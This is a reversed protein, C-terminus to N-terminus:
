TMFQKNGNLFILKNAKEPTLSNRRDTIIQGAKSFIREAPVSTAPVCLYWLAVDSLGNTRNDHLWYKVPDTTEPEPVKEIYQRVCITADTSATSLRQHQSVKRALFSLLGGGFTSTEAVPQVPQHLAANREEQNKLFGVIETEAHKRAEEAREPSRFALKKFRPDLFTAIRPVSRTEYTFLRKELSNFISVSLQKSLDTMLTDCMKLMELYLGHVLPIIQSCTM